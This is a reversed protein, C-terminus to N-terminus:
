EPLLVADIVHVTGNIGDLDFDIVTAVGNIMVSGDDSLTFTLMSGQQSELDLTGGAEEIAAVLEFSGIRTPIVHYFLLSSTEENSALVDSWIEQLVLENFADESPVFITFSGDIDNLFEDVDPASRLASDLLTGFVDVEPDDIYLQVVTSVTEVEPLLVFDIVYITGNAAPIEVLTFENGDISLINGDQQLDVYQGFGTPLTVFGNNEDLVTLLTDSDYSGLLTHYLLVSTLIPPENIIQEYVQPDIRRSLADFAADTPAFLTYNGEPDALAEFVSSNATQVSTLLTTFEPNDPDTASVALLEAITRTETEDGDQAWTMSPAAVSVLLTMLLTAIFARKM